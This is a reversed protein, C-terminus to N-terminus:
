NSMWRCWSHSSDARICAVWASTAAIHMGEFGCQVVV